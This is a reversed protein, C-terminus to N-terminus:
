VGGAAYPNYPQSQNYSHTPNYPQSGQGAPAAYEKPYGTYLPVQAEDEERVALPGYGKQGKPAVIQFGEGNEARIAGHQRSKRRAYIYAPKAADVKTNIYRMAILTIAITVGIIVYNIIKTKKDEQGDPLSSADTIHPRLHLPTLFRVPQSRHQWM